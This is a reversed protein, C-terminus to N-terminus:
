FSRHYNDTVVKENQSNILVNRTLEDYSMVGNKENFVAIPKEAFSSLFTITLIFVMLFLKKGMFYNLKYPLYRFKNQQIM